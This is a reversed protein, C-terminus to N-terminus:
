LARCPLNPSRVRPCVASRETQFAYAPHRLPPTTNCKEGRANFLPALHSTPNPSPLGRPGLQNEAFPDVFIMTANGAMGWQDITFLTKESLDQPHVVMLVRTNDPLKEVDGSLPQVDFFQKM